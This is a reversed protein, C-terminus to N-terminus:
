ILTDNAFLLLALQARATLNTATTAITKTEDKSVWQYKIVEGPDLDQDIHKTGDVVLIVPQVKEDSMGVSSYTAPLVKADLVTTYGTEEQLERKATETGYQYPLAAHGPLAIIQGKSDPLFTRQQTTQIVVHTADPAMHNRYVLIIRANEEPMVTFTKRKTPIDTDVLKFGSERLINYVRNLHTERIYQDDLKRGFRDRLRIEYAVEATVNDGFSKLMDETTIGKITTDANPEYVFDLCAHLDDMYFRRPNQISFVDAPNALRRKFPCNFLQSYKAKSAKVTAQELIPSYSVEIDIHDLMKQSPTITVPVLVSRSYYNKSLKARETDVLRYIAQKLFDANDATIEINM